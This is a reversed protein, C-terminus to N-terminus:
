AVAQLRGHEDAKMNPPTPPNNRLAELQAKLDAIEQQMERATKPTNAVFKWPKGDKELDADNVADIIIGRVWASYKISDREAVAKVMDMVEQPVYIGLATQGTQECYTAYASKVQAM